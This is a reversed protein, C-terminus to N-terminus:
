SPIPGGSLFTAKPTQAGRPATIFPSIKCSSHKKGHRGHHRDQASAAAELLSPLRPTSARQRRARGSLTADGRYQWVIAHACRLGLPIQLQDCLETSSHKPVNFTTSRVYASRSM